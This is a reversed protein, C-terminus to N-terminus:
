VVVYNDLHMSCLVVDDEDDHAHNLVIHLNIKKQNAATPCRCLMRMYIWIGGSNEELCKVVLSIGSVSSICRLSIMLSATPCTERQCLPATCPRVPRSFCEWEREHQLVCGWEDWGNLSHRWVDRYRLMVDTNIAIRLSGPSLIDLWVTPDGFYCVFCM